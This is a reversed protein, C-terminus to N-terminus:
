AHRRLCLANCQVQTKGLGHHVSGPGLAYGQDLAVDFEIQGHQKVPLLVQDDHTLDELVKTIWDCCELTEPRFESWTTKQKKLRRVDSAEVVEQKSLAIPAAVMQRTVKVEEGLGRKGPGGRAHTISHFPLSTKRR